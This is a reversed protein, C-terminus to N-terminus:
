SKWMLLSKDMLAELVERPASGERAGYTFGAAGPTTGTADVEEGPRRPARSVAFRHAFL